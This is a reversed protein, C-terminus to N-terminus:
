LFDFFMFAFRIRTFLLRIEGASSRSFSTEKLTYDTYAWLVLTALEFVKRKCRRRHGGAGSRQRRCSNQCECSFFLEQALRVSPM